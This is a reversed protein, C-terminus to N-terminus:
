LWQRRGRVVGTVCLNLDIGWLRRGGVWWLIFIIGRGGAEFSWVSSGVQEGAYRGGGKCGYILGQVKNNVRLVIRYGSRRVILGRMLIGHNSKEWLIGWWRLCRIDLWYGCARPWGTLSSHVQLHWQMQPTHQGHWYIQSPLCIEYFTWSKAQNRFITRRMAILTLLPLETHNDLVQIIM